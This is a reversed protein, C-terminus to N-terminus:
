ANENKDGGILSLAKKCIENIETEIKQKNTIFDSKEKKSIKPLFITFIIVLILGVCSCIISITLNLLLFCQFCCMLGFILLLFGFVGVGLGFATAKSNRNKELKGVNNLREEMYVQLLQLEDKNEIKHKRLIEQAEDLTTGEPATVLNEKTMSMYIPKSFDTEFRLDRNTIIGVLKGDETVPVGSIKYKGMLNDADQLTNSPSLSFPDIIVGNESRKVKDVETAQQEITMNKHIIGIGGERAIAIALASETVTDMAASMMPIKLKIKKTLNTELNVQDPTVDSKQPILLVDDFTLGEYAFKDTM